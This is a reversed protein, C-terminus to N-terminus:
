GEGPPRHGLVHLYGDGQVTDDVEIGAAGLWEMVREPGPYYHYGGELNLHEGFVVPEGRARGDAMAEELTVGGAEDDGPDYLEVTLWVPAGPRAADRLRRVVDSWEEPGVNELADICIVADYRAPEDLDQLSGLRTGVAPLKRRAEALMGASQDLGEVRRGSAIIAPWYKGTGCAADLILGGPATIALLRELMARHSPSIGGWEADYTAAFLRDYRDRALRRRSALFTARAGATPEGAM